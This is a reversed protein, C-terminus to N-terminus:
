GKKKELNEFYKEDYPRQNEYERMSSNLPNPSNLSNSPKNEKYKQKKQEEHSLIESKSKLGAEHWETIFHDYTSLSPNKYLVSKKLAEEIIDFTYKYNYYWKEIIKNQYDDINKINAKKAIMNKFTNYKDCEMLYNDLQEPTKIGKEAWQRAVAKVYERGRSLSSNKKILSKACHNFLMAMVADDFGFQEYWYEIEKYWSNSMQGAFFTDSIHKVTNVRVSPLKKLEPKNDDLSTRPRYFKNLENEKLDTLIIKKSKQFILGFNELKILNENLSDEPIGLIDSLVAPDVANNKSLFACYIYIRVSDGDLVPLYEKIFVDPICTDSFLMKASIEFSM